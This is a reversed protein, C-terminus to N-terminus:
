QYDVFSVSVISRSEPLLIVDVFRGEQGVTWGGIQDKCRSSGMICNFPEKEITVDETCGFLLM